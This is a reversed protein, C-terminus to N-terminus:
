LAMGLLSNAKASISKRNKSWSLNSTATVGLDNITDLRDLATHDLMYVYSVKLNIITSMEKYYFEIEM